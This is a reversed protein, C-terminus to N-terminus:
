SSKGDIHVEPRINCLRVSNAGFSHPAFVRSTTDRVKSGITTPGIERSRMHSTVFRTLYTGVCNCPMLETKMLLNTNIILLQKLKKYTHTKM